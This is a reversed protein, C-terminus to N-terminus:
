GEIKLEEIVIRRLRYVAAKIKEWAIYKKGRFNECRTESYLIWSDDRLKEARFTEGELDKSKEILEQAYILEQYNKLKMYYFKGHLKSVM